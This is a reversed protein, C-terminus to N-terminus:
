TNVENCTYYINFNLHFSSYKKVFMGPNIPPTVLNEKNYSTYCKTFNWRAFRKHLIMMIPLFIRTKASLFFLIVLSGEYYQTCNAIM